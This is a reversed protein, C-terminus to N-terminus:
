LKKGYVVSHNNEFVTGSLMVIPYSRLITFGSKEFFSRAGYNDEVTTLHVGKVGRSRAQELFKLMLMEGMGLRRFRRDIDIHLHAPYEDLPTDRRFGGRRASKFLSALLRYTQRRLFVGRLLSRLLVAPMIRSKMLGLYRRTDLCGTLYGAVEDDKEAIWLSGPEFDTYYRTVADSFVERDFFFNEVPGGKYATDCCIRRVGERDKKEYTRVILGDHEGM